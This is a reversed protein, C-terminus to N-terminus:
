SRRGYFMKEIEYSEIAARLEKTDLYFAPGDDEEEVPWIKKAGLYNQIHRNSVRVLRKKKMKKM